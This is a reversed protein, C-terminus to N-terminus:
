KIYLVQSLQTSSLRCWYIRRLRQRIGFSVSPAQRNWELYLQRCCQFINSPSCFVFHPMQFDDLIISRPRHSLVSFQTWTPCLSHFTDSSKADPQQYWPCLSFFFHLSLSFYCGDAPSLRLHACSRVLHLYKRLFITSIIIMVIIIYCITINEELKYIRNGM